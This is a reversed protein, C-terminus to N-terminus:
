QGRSRDAAPLWGSRVPVPGPGPWWRALVVAGLRGLIENGEALATMTPDALQDAAADHGILGTGSATV